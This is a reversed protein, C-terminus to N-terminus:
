RPGFCTTLSDITFCAPIKESTGITNFPWKPTRNPDLVLQMMAGHGAECLDPNLRVHDSIAMLKTKNERSHGNLVCHSAVRQNLTPQAIRHSITFLVEFQCIKIDNCSFAHECIDSVDFIDWQEEVSSYKAALWLCVVGVLRYSERPVGVSTRSMYCDLYDLGRHLVERSFEHQGCLEAMWFVLITRDSSTVDGRFHGAYTVVAATAIWGAIDLVLESPSRNRKM